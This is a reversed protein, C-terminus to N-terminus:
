SRHEPLAARPDRTLPPENRLRLVIDALIRPDFGASDHAEQFIPTSIWWPTVGPPASYKAGVTFDGLRAYPILQYSAQADYLAVCDLLASGPRMDIVKQDLSPICAMIAGKHPASITFLRAVNLNPRGSLPAAAYRAVLGGMSMGIVDVCQDGFRHQVNAILDQRCDDFDAGFATVVVLVRDDRIRSALAAHVLGAGIGPDAFGGVIVLPRDLPQPDQAVRDLIVRADHMTVEFSPNTPHACGIEILVFSVVLSARLM